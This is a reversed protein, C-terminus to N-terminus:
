QVHQHDAQVAISATTPSPLLLKVTRQGIQSCLEVGQGSTRLQEQQGAQTLQRDWALMGDIGDRKQTHTYAHCGHRYYHVCPKVELM